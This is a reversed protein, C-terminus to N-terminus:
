VFSLFDKAGNESAKSKRKTKKNKNTAKKKKDNENIQNNLYLFNLEENKKSKM